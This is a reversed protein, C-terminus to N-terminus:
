FDERGSGLEARGPVVTVNILPQVTFSKGGIFRLRDQQFGAIVFELRGAQDDVGEPVALIRQIIVTGRHIRAQHDIKLSLDAQRQIVGGARGRQFDRGTAAVREARNVASFHMLQAVGLQRLEGLDGEIGVDFLANIQGEVLDSFNGEGAVVGGATDNQVRQCFLIFVDGQYEIVGAKLM